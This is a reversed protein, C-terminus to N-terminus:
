DVMGSPVDISVIPIKTTKLAMLIEGFPERIPPKFGFGFIGDVILDYESTKIKMM